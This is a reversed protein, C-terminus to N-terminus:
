PMVVFKKYAHIDDCTICKVIYVGSSFGSIIISSHIENIDAEYVTEGLENIFTYHGAVGELTFQATARIRICRYLM